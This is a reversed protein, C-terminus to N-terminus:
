ARESPALSTLELGNVEGDHASVYWCATELDKKLLVNEAKLQKSKKIVVNFFQGDEFAEKAWVLEPDNFIEDPIIETIHKM